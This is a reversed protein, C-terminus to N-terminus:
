ENASAMRYCDDIAERAQAETVDYLSYETVTHPETNIDGDNRAVTIGLLRLEKDLHFTIVSIGSAFPESGPTRNSRWFSIEFGASSNETKYFVYRDPDWTSGYYSYMRPEQITQSWGNTNGSQVSKAYRDSGILLRYQELIRTEGRHERETKTYTYTDTGCIWGEEHTRLAATSDVSQRETQESSYHIVSRSCLEEYVAAAIGSWKKNDQRHAEMSQLPSLIANEVAAQETTHLTYTYSVSAKIQNTVPEKGNYVVNSFLIDTLRLDRDFRFTLYQVQLRPSSALNQSFTVEMARNKRACGDFTYGLADWEATERLPGQYKTTTQWGSVALDGHSNLYYTGDKSLFAHCSGAEETHILYCDEGNLWTEETYVTESDSPYRSMTHTYHLAEANSLQAYADQCMTVWQSDSIDAYPNRVLFFVFVCLAAGAVALLIQLRKTPRVPVKETKEPPAKRAPRHSLLQDIYDANIEPLENGRDNANKM